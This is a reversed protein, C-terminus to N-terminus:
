ELRTNETIEVVDYPEVITAERKVMRHYFSEVMQVLYLRYCHKRTVQFVENILNKGYGHYQLDPPLIINPIIVSKADRNIAIKIITHRGKEKAQKSTLYFEIVDDYNSESYDYNLSMSPNLDIFKYLAKIIQRDIFFVDDGEIRNTVAGDKLIYLNGNDFMVHQSGDNEERLYYGNTRLMGQIQKGGHLDEKFQDELNM